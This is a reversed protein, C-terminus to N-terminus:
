KHEVIVVDFYRMNLITEDCEYMKTPENGTDMYITNQSAHNNRESQFLIYIYYTKARSNLKSISLQVFQIPNPESFNPSLHAHKKLIKQREDVTPMLLLMVLTHRVYIQEVQKLLEWYICYSTYMHSYSKMKGLM